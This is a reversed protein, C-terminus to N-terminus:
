GGFLAKVEDTTLGTAKALKKQAQSKAAERSEQTKRGLAGLEKRKAEQEVEFDSKKM